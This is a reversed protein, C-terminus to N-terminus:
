RTFAAALKHDANQAQTTREMADLREQISVLQRSTTKKIANIQASLTGVQAALRKNERTQEQVKVAQKQLENLLMGILMTYRVTMVQGDAGHTVLEPYLKAVEEAVLGYQLTGAPDHKYRFTVPRLKMLNDSAGNMDHIDRKCRASSMMIGLKGEKNVFVPTEAVDTGFIGAIFTDTQADGIRITNSEGLRGTNGIDINYSGDTLSVGADFGLGINNGGINRGLAGKGIATNNIGTENSGLASSGDATNNRGTTNKLLANDGTACNESATTNSMLANAGIATDYSGTLNSKLAGAGVATDRKGSTTERLADFGFASDSQDLTSASALAGAGLQTNTQAVATGAVSLTIALCAASLLNFGPKKNM